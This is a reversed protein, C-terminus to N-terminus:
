KFTQRRTLSRFSRDSSLRILEIKLLLLRQLLSSYTNRLVNTIAYQVNKITVTNDHRIIINDEKDTIYKTTNVTTEDKPLTGM